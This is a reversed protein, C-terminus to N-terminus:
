ELLGGLAMGAAQSTMLWRECPCLGDSVLRASGRKSCSLAVREAGRLAQGHLGGAAASDDSRQGEVPMTTVPVGAVRSSLGTGLPRVSGWRAARTAVSGSGLAAVPVQDAASPHAAGVGAAGDWSDRWPLPNRRPQVVVAHSRCNPAPALPDRSAPETPSRLHHQVRPSVEPSLHEPPRSRWAHPLAPPAPVTGGQGAGVLLDGVQSHLWDMGQVASAAWLPFILSKLDGM